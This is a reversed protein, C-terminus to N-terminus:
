GTARRPGQGPAPLQRGQSCPDTHHVLRDILAAAVVEDGFIEGWASFPKNSAAILLAARLPGPRPQLRPDRDCRGPVAQRNGALHTIAQKKPSRQFSFDFEDLTKRGPFRTARIRDAGGHFDHSAIESSHV